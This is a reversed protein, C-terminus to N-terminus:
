LLDGLSLVVALLAGCCAALLTAALVVPTALLIAALVTCCGALTATLIVSWTWLPGSYLRSLSHMLTQISSRHLEWSAPLSSRTISIKMKKM